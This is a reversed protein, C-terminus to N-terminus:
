CIVTSHRLLHVADTANGGPSPVRKKSNEKSIVDWYNTKILNKQRKKIATIASKEMKLVSYLQVYCQHQAVDIGFVVWRQFIRSVQFGCDNIWITSIPKNSISGFFDIQFSVM